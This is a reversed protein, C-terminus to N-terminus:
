KSEWVNDASNIDPVHLSGLAIKKVKKNTNFSITINTNGAEWVAISRHINQTCGDEFTITMDVPVPKTGKASVTVTCVNGSQNVKEIALDPVGNDFFWRKWFWNLNKGSGANMCNFFDFPGPHKGHWEEIYYHVAKTFLSDGLMDKVFLYGLAPKPYCNLFYATGSTQTSLTMIPLDVEDGSYKNTKDMGYDDAITTDILPSILWEGITAWGEDMWGYKTENIGMYFPFMTHFIEHATLTIEDSKDDEPKDNVMMPYEMEDLGDYVTEHPYPYPWAPFVYSMNKVTQRAYHVVNFYDEHNPNFVADVRTRRKTSPDVVLSSAYWLYHNSTAFVFDTVNKAEFKWTNTENQTTIHGKQFDTTDIIKTIGDNQEAINIRQAIQPALVENANLLNGTANVTYNEPVTVAVNFDCFDNYFEQSGIYPNKNWGDIDDYVAIRPFFYAIFASSDDIMGTRNHSTKNLIYSFSINFKMQKGPLLNKVKTHMNTGDVDIEDTNKENNDIQIKEIRIGEGIDQTEITFDRQSGQKFVNPYLKFWIEKLTDPSNNSYVIEENGAVIRTKPAYSVQINYQATNQWYRAGPGGDASRTQKDYAAQINRPLPLSQQAFIESAVFCFSFLFINKM